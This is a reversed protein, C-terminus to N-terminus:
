TSFCYVIKKKNLDFVWLRSFAYQQFTDEVFDRVRPYWYEEAFMPNLGIYLLLEIPFPSKYTKAYKKIIIKPTPEDVSGSSEVTFTPEGFGKERKTILVKKAAGELPVIDRYGPKLLLLQNFISGFSKKRQWFSLSGDFQFYLGTDRYLDNFAQRKQPPLENYFEQLAKQTDRRLSLRRAYSESIIESLEFAVKGTGTIECLIDPEPVKRKEITGLNIPLPCVEAFAKFVEVEKEGQDQSM